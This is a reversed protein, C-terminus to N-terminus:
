TSRSCSLSKVKLVADIADSGYADAGSSDAWEQDIFAGGIIVKIDERLGESKLAEIVDRFKFMTSSILASMGLVDPRLERVKEVFTKDPVDVGIDIVEFGEAVLMAAVLSKGIDHIDGEVSGLLVRGLSPVEKKQREIEKTLVEMAAKSAEACFLLETLFMEGRGFREGVEKLAGTVGNILELADHSKELGEEAIARSEEINGEKVALSLKIILDEKAM